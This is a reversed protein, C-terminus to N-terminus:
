AGPPLESMRARINPWRSVSVIPWGNTTSLRAPAPLM